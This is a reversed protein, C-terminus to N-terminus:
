LILKVLAFALIITNLALTTYSKLFPYIMGCYSILSIAALLCLYYGATNNQRLLVFAIGYIGGGILLIHGDMLLRLLDRDYPGKHQKLVFFDHLLGNVILFLAVFLVLYKFDM